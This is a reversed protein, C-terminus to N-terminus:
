APYVGCACSVAAEDSTSIMGLGVYVSVVCVCFRCVCFFCECLLVGLVCGCCMTGMPCTGGSMSLVLVKDVCVCCVCM